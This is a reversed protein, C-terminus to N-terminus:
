HGASTSAQLDAAVIRAAVSVGNRNWHTDDRWWTFRGKKLLADSERALPETLNTCRLDLKHCIGNLYEWQVNPLTGGPELHKYYVRYKTPIFYVHELSPKLESFVEEFGEPAPAATRRTVNVYRQYFAVKQGALERILLSSGESIDRSKALRKILSKTVRYTNWDSFMEYYRRGYRALFYEPRGRSEEFDNGEFIFLLVRVPDAYRRQFGKLYALYDAPSGPYALSYTDLHYTDRLQSVLADEHSNSSGAAFSDGILLYRQGHYDRDNRFGDRDTHFRIHRPEAVAETTLARLDGHPMDAELHINASYRRHNNDYDFVVYKEDPRYYIRDEFGTIKLAAWYAITVLVMTLSVTIAALAGARWYLIGLAIVLGLFLGEPLGYALLVHVVVLWAVVSTIRQARLSLSM